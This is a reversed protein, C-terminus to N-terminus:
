RRSRSARDQHGAAATRLQDSVAPCVVADRWAACASDSQYAADVRRRTAELEAASQSEAAVFRRLSRSLEEKVAAERGVCERLESELIAASKSSAASADAAALTEARAVKLEGIAGLYQGRYYMALVILAACVPLLYAKAKALIAAPIM